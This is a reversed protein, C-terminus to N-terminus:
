YNKTNGLERPSGEYNRPSGEYNRAGRTTAQPGTPPKGGRPTSLLAQLGPLRASRLPALSARPVVFSTRPNIMSKRSKLKSKRPNGIRRNPNGLIEILIRDPNQNSKSEIKAHM